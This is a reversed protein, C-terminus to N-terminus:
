LVSFRSKDALALGDDASPRAGSAGWGLYSAHIEGQAAKRSERQKGSRQKDSCYAAASM